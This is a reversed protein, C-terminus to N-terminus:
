NELYEDTPQVGPSDVTIGKPIDIDIKDTGQEEDVIKKIITETDPNDIEPKPSEIKENNPEDDDEKKEPKKEQISPVAEENDGGHINVIPNSENNLGDEMDENELNTEIPNIFDDKDDTNM